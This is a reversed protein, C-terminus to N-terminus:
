SLLIDIVYDNNISTYVLQTSTNNRLQRKSVVKKEIIAGDIDLKCDFIKYKLIDLIVNVCLFQHSM